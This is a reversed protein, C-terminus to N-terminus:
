REQQPETGFDRSSRCEGRLSHRDRDATRGICGGEPTPTTGTTGTGRADPTTRTTLGAGIELLGVILHPWRVQDAFGFLWRSLSLLLGRAGDVALRAPMPILRTLSWEDDTVLSVLLIGIGFIM